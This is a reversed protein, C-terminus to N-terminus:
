ERGRSAGRHRCPVRIRGGCTAVIYVGGPRWRGLRNLAEVVDAEVGFAARRKHIYLLATSESAGDRFGHAVLSPDIGRERTGGRSSSALARAASSARASSAGIGDGSGSGSGSVHSRAQGRARTSRSPTSTRDPCASPPDPESPVSRTALRCTARPPWPMRSHSLCAAPWRSCSLDPPAQRNARGAARFTRWSSIARPDYSGM